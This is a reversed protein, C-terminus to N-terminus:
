WQVSSSAKGKYSKIEKRQERHKNKQNNHPLFVTKEPRDLIRYAGLVKIPM